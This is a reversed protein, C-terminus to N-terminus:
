SEIVLPQPRGLNAVALLKDHFVRSGTLQAGTLGLVAKGQGAKDALM